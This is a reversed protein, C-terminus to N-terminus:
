YLRLRQLKGFLHATQLAGDMNRGRRTVGVLEKNAFLGTGYCDYLVPDSKFGWKEVELRFHLRAALHPKEGQGKM